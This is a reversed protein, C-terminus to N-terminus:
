DLIGDNWAYVALVSSATCGCTCQIEHAQMGESPMTLLFLLVPLLALASSCVVPLHRHSCARQEDVELEADTDPRCHELLALAQRSQKWETAHLHWLPDDGTPPPSLIELDM